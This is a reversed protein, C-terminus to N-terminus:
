LKKKKAHDQNKTQDNDEKGIWSQPCPTPRYERHFTEASVTYGMKKGASRRDAEDRDMVLYHTLGRMVIIGQVESEWPERPRTYTFCTKAPYQSPVPTSATTESLLPPIMSLSVWSKVSTLGLSLNLLLSLLLLTKYLYM